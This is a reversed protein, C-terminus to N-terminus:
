QAGPAGACPANADLVAKVKAGGHCVNDMEIWNLHTFQPGGPLAFDSKLYEALRENMTSYKENAIPGREATKFYSILSSAHAALMGHEWYAPISSAIPQMKSEEEEEEYEDEEEEKEEQEEQWEKQRKKERLAKAKQRAAEKKKKLAEKKAKAEERAKKGRPLDEDDDEDEDAEDAAIEDEEAKAAKEREYQEDTIGRALHSFELYFDDWVKKHEASTSWCSPELFASGECTVTAEKVKVCKKGVAIIKNVPVSHPLDRNIGKSKHKRSKFHVTMERVEKVTKGALVNCDKVFPVGELALLLRVEKEEDKVLLDTSEEDDTEDGPFGLHLVILESPKDKAWNQIDRIANVLRVTPANDLVAIPEEVESYIKNGAMDREPEVDDEESYEINIDLIRAGCDLQKVLSGQQQKRMMAKAKTFSHQKGLVLYGSGASRAMIAKWDELPVPDWLNAHELECVHGSGAFPKYSASVQVHGDSLPSMTDGKPTLNIVVFIFLVGGVIFTIKGLHDGVGM